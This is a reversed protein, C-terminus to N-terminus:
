KRIFKKLEHLVDPNDQNFIMRSEENEFIFLTTVVTNHDKLEYRIEFPKDYAQVRAWKEEFAPFNPLNYDAVGKLIRCHYKAMDIQEDITRQVM